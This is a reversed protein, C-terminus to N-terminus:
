NSSILNEWLSESVQVKELLQPDSQPRQVRAPNTPLCLTFTTGQGEESRATIRGGHHHAIFYCAMLHIGYELPTDGRLAFPDFLVRLTEQSLAPGNDSVQVQIEEQGPQAGELPTASLTIRTGAPLSAIEDRLLLEFLRCFKPRDVNLMPISEPILNDVQIDKAAFADRLRAVVEGVIEHLRVRDAFEPAPMESATRLDRLMKNIREMQGQVDHHFEKWFDPHRLGDLHAKEEEMKAPALDLFTKVAVLPTRIHQSLGATLLGFSIIRDAVMRDQLLEMKEKLLQERERQVMFFELARELTDRLQPVDWAKDFYKYIAGSNVAAITANHDSYATTLIRIIRPRLQRAKELLWTGQEGPMKQDTMLVGIEDKHQELLQLGERARSATLIRFQNRFERKFAELELVVDDVYLIAFRKYDYPNDTLGDQAIQTNV